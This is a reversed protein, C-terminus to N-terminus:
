SHSYRRGIWTHPTLLVLLAIFEMRGALMDFALVAKLLAPLEGSTIGTSLGVTGTASVVEFLADLPVHGYVMFPIVSLAVVILFLAPVVLIHLMEGSELPRGNLRAEAVAHPPLAMRRILIQIIRLVVILRLLKIGGATSGVSGGLTMSVIGTWKAADPLTAPDVATFGSTTQASIGLMFAQGAAEAPAMGAGALLLSLTAGAALTLLVLARLEADGFVAAWKGRVAKLYLPLSVAALLTIGSLVWPTATGSFGGLSDDLSSFGGTSVGSFVHILASLADREAAWLAAFGAATMAGYVVLLRRAHWTMSPIDSERAGTPELLRRAVMGRPVLLVVALAAFGLGGYWQMWARTLLLPWPHESAAGLTSLGTTTVGSVAEFWADIPAIGYATLPWLMALPTLTFAGAALVLAENPQIEAPADVRTGLWGALALVLAVIASAAASRYEGGLAAAAAPVVTLVAVTVALQGGYRALVRLRVAHELTKLRNRQAM